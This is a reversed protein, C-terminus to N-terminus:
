SPPKAILVCMVLNAQTMMANVAAKVFDEKTIDELDSVHYQGSKSRFVAM